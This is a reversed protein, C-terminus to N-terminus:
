PRPEAALWGLMLDQTGGTLLLFEKGDCQILLLRKRPGLALSDIVRLRQGARSGTVTRALRLARGGLWILGIVFGLAALAALLSARSSDM